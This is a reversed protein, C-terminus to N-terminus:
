ECLDKWWKDHFVFGQPLWYGWSRLREFHFFLSWAPLPQGDPGNLLLVRHRYTTDRFRTGLIPHVRTVGDVRIVKGLFHEKRNNHEVYGRWLPIVLFDWPHDHLARDEDSRVFKHAFLTVRRSKFLYWRHLYPQKECNVIVKKEFWRDLLPEADYIFAALLVLSIVAYLM